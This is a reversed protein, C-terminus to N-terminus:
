SLKFKGIHAEDKISQDVSDNEIIADLSKIAKKCNMGVLTHILSIKVFPDTEEELAQLMSDIVKNNNKFESLGDIAAIKVNANEDEQMVKILLDILEADLNGVKFSTRVAKMRTSSSNDLQAALMMDKAEKLSHNVAQLDTQYQQYQYVNIATLGAVLLLVLGAAIKLWIKNDKKLPLVKSETIETQLLAEFEKKMGVPPAVTKATDMTDLVLKLAAYEEAVWGGAEIKQKVFDKLEGEKLTGEIYEILLDQMKDNNIEM